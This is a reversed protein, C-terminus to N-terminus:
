RQLEAIAEDIKMVLEQVKLFVEQIYDVRLRYHNRKEKDQLLGSLQRLISVQPNLKQILRVEGANRRTQDNTIVLIEGIAQLLDPFLRDDLYSFEPDRGAFYVLKPPKDNFSLLPTYFKQFIARKRREVELETHTNM